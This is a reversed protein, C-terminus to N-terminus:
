RGPTPMFVGTGAHVLPLLQGAKWTGAQILQLMRDRIQDARKRTQITLGDPNM